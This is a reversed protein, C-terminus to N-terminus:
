LRLYNPIASKKWARSPDLLSIPESGGRAYRPSNELWLRIISDDVEWGQTVSDGSADIVLVYVGKELLSHLNAQTFPALSGWGYSVYLSNAPIEEYSGVYRFGYELQLIHNSVVVDCRQLQPDRLIYNVAKDEVDYADPYLIVGKAKDLVYEKPYKEHQSTFSIMMPKVEPHFRPIRLYM